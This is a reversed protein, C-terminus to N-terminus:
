RQVTQLSYEAEVFVPWIQLIVWLNGCRSFCSYHQKYSGKRLWHHNFQGQQRSISLFGLLCQKVKPCCCLQFQTYFGFSSSNYVVPIRIACLCFIGYFLSDLFFNSTVICLWWATTAKLSLMRNKTLQERWRDVRGRRTSLATQDAHRKLLARCCGSPRWATIISPQHWKRPNRQTEVINFENKNSIERITASTVM